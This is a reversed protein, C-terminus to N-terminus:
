ETVMRPMMRTTMVSLRLGSFVSGHIMTSTSASAAAVNKDCWCACGSAFTASAARRKPRPSSSVRTVTGSLQPSSTTSRAFAKLVM